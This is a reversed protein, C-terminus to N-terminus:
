GRAELASIRAEHDGVLEALKSLTRAIRETRKASDRALKVLAELHGASALSNEQLEAVDAMLTLLVDQGTAKAM